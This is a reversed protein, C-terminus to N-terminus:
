KGGLMAKARQAQLEKVFREAESKSGTALEVIRKLVAANKSEASMGGVHYERHAM